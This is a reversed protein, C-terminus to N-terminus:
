FSIPVSPFKPVGQIGAKKKEKEEDATVMATV